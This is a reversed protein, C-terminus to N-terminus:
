VLHARQRLIAKVLWLVVFSVGLLILAMTLALNLDMEFGIYIALPMTQTRGPFNGAFIITAGFEGLARAWTMVLGGLLVPWALPLTIARFIQLSSAGDIAAAQELEREIGAFASIATKIYFPAAVFVQALVVAITTFAISLGAEDLWSGLLGRRGFAILLAIGAVSPPLVMPLDILTDVLSRGRFRRRALMYALPTGLLLSILTSWLTTMLSLGIAQRVERSMVNDILAVPDVRVILAVIPFLLYSLIPLSALVIGFQSLKWRRGSHRVAVRLPTTVSAM